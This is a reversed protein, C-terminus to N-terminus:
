NTQPALCWTWRLRLCWTWRNWVHQLLQSARIWCRRDRSIMKCRFLANATKLCGIALQCDNM